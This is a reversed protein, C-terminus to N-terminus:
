FVLKAGVQLIRAPIQTSSIRGFSTSLINTDPMGLNVNNTLNFAEGRLQLNLREGIPILRHLGTDLEFVGPGRVDPLVRGVNGFTYLAPQSFVSTDFWHSTSRQDASLYASTGTSDALPAGAAM